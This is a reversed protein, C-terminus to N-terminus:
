GARTCSATQRAGPARDNRTFPSAAAAASCYGSIPAQCPGCTIGEGCSLARYQQEALSAAALAGGADANAFTECGCALGEIVLESCQNPQSPDCAKADELASAYRNSIDLCSDCGRLTCAVGGGSECSCTNCGDEAPFSDGCWRSYGSQLWRRRALNTPCSALKARQLRLAPHPVAFPSAKASTV